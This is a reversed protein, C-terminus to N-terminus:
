CTAFRSVAAPIPLYRGSSSEARPWFRRRIFTRLVAIQKVMAPGLKAMPMHDLYDFRRLLMEKLSNVADTENCGTTNVNADFFSALFEDGCPRVVVKIEKLLEFPEPAFTTIPVIISVSKSLESVRTKPALLRGNAGSKRSAKKRATKTKAM